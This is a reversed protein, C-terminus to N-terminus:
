KTSGGIRVPEGTLFNVPGGAYTCHKRAWERAERRAEAAEAATNMAAAMHRWEADEATMAYFVRAAHEARAENTETTDTVGQRYGIPVGDLRGSQYHLFTCENLAEHLQESLTKSYHDHHM